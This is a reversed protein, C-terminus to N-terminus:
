EGGYAVSQWYASSPLTAATWTIGDTSYAAKDTSISYTDSGFAVAVFKGNGYTVSKWQSSGISPMTIETWSIGDTSYAAKNLFNNLAVAVYKGNGYTVSSWNVSDNGKPITTETWSIGDTSYAVKHSYGAAIAVFKGNGYTVSQWVASSPLTAATWTIGDTSYVAKDDYNSIAVFKGNGYTVSSWYSESPLTAATWTIGDTSYAAKDTSISYTASDLAVAVFKGNGYTVSEWGARGSNPMTTETWSIGDTSYIAKNGLKAIAVFKGNGYTVSQWYASSPLTAATWTIGDTSYVAKDDYNSIAVFKGAPKWLTQVATDVAAKDLAQKTAYGSTGFATTNRNAKDITQLLYEVNAAKSSTGSVPAYSTKWKANIADCVYQCNVIQGMDGTYGESTVTGVKAILADQIEGFWFAPDVPDVTSNGPNNQDGSNATGGTMDECSVWLATVLAIVLMTGAWLVGQKKM